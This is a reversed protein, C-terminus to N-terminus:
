WKMWAPSFTLIHRHAIGTIITSGWPTRFRPHVKRFITPLLGDRSMSFFFEPKVSNFCLVSDAVAIVPVQRWGIKLAAIRPHKCYELALTLPEAQQNSLTNVVHAPYPIM